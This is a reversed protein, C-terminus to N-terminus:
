EDRIRHHEGIWDVSDAFASVDAMPKGNSGVFPAIEVAVSIILKSGVPDKKLEQLFSLFNASDNPSLVNCGIGQKGPYEWSLFLRSILQPYIIYLVRYM